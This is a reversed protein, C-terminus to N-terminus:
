RPHLLDSKERWRGAELLVRAERQERVELRAGGALEGQDPGQGAVSLRREQVLPASGFLGPKEQGRPAELM